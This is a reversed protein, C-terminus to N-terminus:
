LLNQRLLYQQVEQLSIKHMCFPQECSVRAVQTCPSCSAASQITHGQWPGWQLAYTPGFLTLSPVELMGTLHMPGCDNGIVLKSASILNQLESLSKPSVQEFNKVRLGREREVPGLVFLADQGKDKKLWNGLQLFNELPWCKAKSGSGPFILTRDSDRNLASSCILNKWAETWDAKWFLGKSILQEAFRQRPPLWSGQDINLGPLFLLQESNVALPNNQLGFWIVLYERLTKPWQVSSYLTEISALLEAPCPKFGLPETWLSYSSRGAWFFEKQPWNQTLSYLAPWAQLFDGLAGNHVCIIKEPIYM